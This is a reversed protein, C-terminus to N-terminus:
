SELAAPLHYGDYQSNSAIYEAFEPSEYAAKIAKAWDSDVNKEDVAVIVSFEDTLDELLLADTLKLGGAVVFNGQIVDYDVDQLAPVQQANELTVFQLNYPNSTVDAPSATAPDITDSLEIWGADVLVQFARYMNSPQNPVAVTSGDSVDDLSEKKGGFLAMPPGPVQVLSVNTYGEQVNISDMYVSHQMINADIEGSNLAGNVIVGDTFDVTEVTYGDEELIPLIGANFMDEYPGPNFGIKLATKTEPASGTTDDSTEGACATLAIALATVTAVAAFRPVFRM